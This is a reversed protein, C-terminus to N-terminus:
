KLSTLNKEEVAFCPIASSFIVEPIGNNYIRSGNENIELNSGSIGYRQFTYEPPVICTIMFTGDQKTKIVENEITTSWILAIAIVAIVIWNQNTSSSM